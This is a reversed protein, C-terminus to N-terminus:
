TIKYCYKKKDKKKIIIIITAIELIKDLKVTIM